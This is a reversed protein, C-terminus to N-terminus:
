PRRSLNCCRSYWTPNELMQVVSFGGIPMGFAAKRDPRTILMSSARNLLFFRRETPNNLIGDNLDAPVVHRNDVKLTQGPKLPVKPTLGKM